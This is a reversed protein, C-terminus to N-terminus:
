SHFFVSTTINNPEADSEEDEDDESSADGSNRSPLFVKMKPGNQAANKSRFPSFNNDVQALVIKSDSKAPPLLPEQFVKDGDLTVSSKWSSTASRRPIVVSTEDAKNAFASSDNSTNPLSIVEEPTPLAAVPQLSVVTGNQITRSSALQTFTDDKMSMSHESCSDHKEELELDILCNNKRNEGLDTLDQGESPKADHMFSRLEQYHLLVIIFFYFQLTAIILLIARQNQMESFKVACWIVSGVIAALHLVIWPLFFWSQKKVIGHLLSINSLILFLVVLALAVLHLAFPQGWITELYHGIATVLLIIDAVGATTAGTQLNGCCWLRAGCAISAM